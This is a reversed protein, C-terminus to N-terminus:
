TVFAGLAEGMELLKGNIEQIEAIGLCGALQWHEIKHFEDTMKLLHRPFLSGTKKKSVGSLNNSCFLEFSNKNKKKVEVIYQISFESSVMRYHNKEGVSELEINVHTRM